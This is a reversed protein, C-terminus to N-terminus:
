ANKLVDYAVSFADDKFNNVHFRFFSLKTELKKLSLLTAKVKVPDKPRYVQQYLLPFIEGFSIQEIYNDQARELSIINKLPVISNTYVNEKGAWPSGCVSPTDTTIVFTKDGNVVKVNALNEIWRAIHTSKGVGSNGIFLHAEGNVEISAGHMLVVGYDLLYNAIRRHVANTEFFSDWRNCYGHMLIYNQKEYEIEDNLIVIQCEAEEGNVIFDRCISRSLIYNTVLEITHNAIKVKFSYM